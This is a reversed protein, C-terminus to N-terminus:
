IRSILCCCLSLGFKLVEFIYDYIFVFNLSNFLLLILLRVYLSNSICTIASNVNCFDLLDFKRM